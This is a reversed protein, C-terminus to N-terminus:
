VTPESTASSTSLPTPGTSLSAVAGEALGEPFFHDGIMQTLKIAQRASLAKYAVLDMGAAQMVLMTLGWNDNPNGQRHKDAAMLTEVTVNVTYTQGGVTVELPEAALADLDCVAM